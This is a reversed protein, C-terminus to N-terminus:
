SASSYKFFRWPQHLLIITAPPPKRATPAALLGGMPNNPPMTVRLTFSSPIRTSRSTAVISSSNFISPM